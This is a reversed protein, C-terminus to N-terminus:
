FISFCAPPGQLAGLIEPLQLPYGVPEATRYTSRTGSDVGAIDRVVHLNSKKRGRM